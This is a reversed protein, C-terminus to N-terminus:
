LEGEPLERGEFGATSSRRTPSRPQASEARGGEDADRKENPKKSTKTGAVARNASAEPGTKKMKGDGLALRLTDPSVDLGGKKLVGAIESWTAKKKKATPERLALLDTRMALVKETKTRAKRGFQESKAAKRVIERLSKLEDGNM